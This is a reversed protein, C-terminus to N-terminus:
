KETPKCKTKQKFCKFYWRNQQRDAMVTFMQILSLCSLSIKNRINIMFFIAIKIIDYSQLLQFNRKSVKKKPKQKPLFLTFIQKNVMKPVRTLTYRTNITSRVRTIDSVYLFYITKKSVSKMM